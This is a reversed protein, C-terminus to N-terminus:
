LSLGLLPCAPNFRACSSNDTISDLSRRRSRTSLQDRGSRLTRKQPYLLCERLTTWHRSKVWLPCQAISNTASCLPARLATPCLRNPGSGRIANHGAAVRAYLCASRMVAGSWHQLFTLFNKGPRRGCMVWLPGLSPRAANREQGLGSEDHAFSQQAEVFGSSM